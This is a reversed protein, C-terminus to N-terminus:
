LKLVIILISAVGLFISIVFSLWYLFHDESRNVSRYILIMRGTALGRIATFLYTFGPWYYWGNGIPLLASECATDEAELADSMGSVLSAVASQTADNIGPLPKWSCQDSM